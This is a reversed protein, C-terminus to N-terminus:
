LRMGLGSWGRAQVAVPTTRFPVATGPAQHYRPRQEANQGPGFSTSSGNGLDPCLHALHSARILVPQPVSEVDCALVTTQPHRADVVHRAPTLCPLGRVPQIPREQAGSEFQRVDPSHGRRVPATAPDYPDSTPRIRHLSEGTEQLREHAAVTTGCSGSKGPHAARTPVDGAASVKPPLQWPALSWPAKREGPPDPLYQVQGSTHGIPGRTKSARGM